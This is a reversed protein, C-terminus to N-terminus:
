TVGVPFNIVLALASRPIHTLFVNDQCFVAIARGSRGAGAASDAPLTCLVGPRPRQLAPLLATEAADSSQWLVETARKHAVLHWPNFGAPRSTQTRSPHPHHQAPVPM